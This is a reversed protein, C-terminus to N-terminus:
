EAAALAARPAHGGAAPRAQFAKLADRLLVLSAALLVTDKLLFAGTFSIAPAGVAAEFIGPTTLLLSSTVFYTVVSFAAGAVGARVSFAGLALLVATATEAVGLLYSAGHIGLLAHTWSLLPSNAILPVLGQAEYDFWKTHGFLAFVLVLSWRLLHHDLRSRVFGDTLRTLTSRPM